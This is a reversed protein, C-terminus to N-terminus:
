ETIVGLTAVIEELDPGVNPVLEPVTGAIVAIRPDPLVLGVTPVFHAPHVVLVTEQKALASNYHYAHIGPMVERARSADMVRDDYPLYEQGQTVVANVKFTQDRGFPRSVGLIAYRVGQLLELTDEVAKLRRLEQSAATQHQRRHSEVYGQAQGSRSYALWGLVLAIGGVIIGLIDM